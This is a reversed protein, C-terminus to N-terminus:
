SAARPRPGTRRAALQEVIEVVAIRSRATAERFAHLLRM